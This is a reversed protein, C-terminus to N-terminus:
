HSEEVLKVLGANEVTDVVDPFNDKLFDIDEKDMNIEAAAINEKLHGIDTSKAITVINDQGILWAIAAQGPTKNYKKCFKELIEFKEQLFLGKQVPRWAVVMIDNDQCYKITGDLLPGRHKLNYHLHNCVIKNASNEQAQAFQWLNFNSLGIFRAYQNEVLYDMAQMTEKIDIYPNPNHIVYVDIYDTGIRKLSDKASKILDKYHLNTPTVKTTIILAFRDFGKIAKGVLEETYGGAYWAATDIHTVGMEIASKIAFIDARDDNEPNRKERGGMQWTGFGFVPLKFGCKLKKVPIKM